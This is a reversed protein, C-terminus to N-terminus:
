FHTKGFVNQCWKPHKFMVIAGMKLGNQGVNVWKAVHMCWPTCKARVKFGYQPVVCSELIYYQVGTVKFRALLSACLCACM